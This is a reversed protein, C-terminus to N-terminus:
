GGLFETEAGSEVVHRTGRRVESVQVALRRSAAAHRDPVIDRAQKSVRSERDVAAAANVGRGDPLAYGLRYGGTAVQDRRACVRAASRVPVVM